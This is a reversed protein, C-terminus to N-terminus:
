EAKAPEPQAESEGLSPPNLVRERATLRQPGEAAGSGLMENWTNDTSVNIAEPDSSEHRDLNFRSEPSLPLWKSHRRFVTKKGMENFDTVWPGNNPSKSRARIKEVEALTMTDFSETGDKLRVYSYFRKPKGIREEGPKHVLRGGTGYVVEFEDDPYVADAHIFSVDGSRQVLEALGKYDIILQCEVCAHRDKCDCLTCNPGRHQDMEHGCECKKNNKFPILHARRGDPEIGYFACDLMAKFFSERTCEALLPVRLMATLAARVFRSPRMVRPSVESVAKMFDDSRLLDKLTRPQKALATAKQEVRDAREEIEPAAAPPGTPAPVPPQDNM